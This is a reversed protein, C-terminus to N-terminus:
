KRKYDEVGRLALGIAVSFSAGLSDVYPQVDPGVVIRRWPNGLFVKMGLAKSFYEEMGKMKSTGGSLIVGDIRASPNKEKYSYLM